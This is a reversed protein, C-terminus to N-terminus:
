LAKEYRLRLSVHSRSVVARLQEPESQCSGGDLHRCSIVREQVTILMILKATM